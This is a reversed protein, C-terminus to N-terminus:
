INLLVLCYFHNVFYICMLVKVDFQIFSSLKSGLLTPNYRYMFIRLYSLSASKIRWNPNIVLSLVVSIASEMFAQPLPMWKLLEFAAKALM